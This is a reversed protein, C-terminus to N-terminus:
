PMSGEIYGVFVVVAAIVIYFRGPTMRDAIWDEIRNM